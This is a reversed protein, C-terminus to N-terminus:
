RRQGCHAPHFQEHRDERQNEPHTERARSGMRRVAVVVHGGSRTSSLTSMPSGITRAAVACFDPEGTSLGAAVWSLGCCLGSVFPPVVTVEYGGALLVVAMPAVM